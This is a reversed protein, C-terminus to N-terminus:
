SNTAVFSPTPAVTSPVVMPATAAPLMELVAFKDPLCIVTEFRRFDAHVDADLFRIEIAGGENELFGKVADMGVGRGSVETVKEATSFGSAFILQAITEASPLNEASILRNEIAKQRIRAIALGRGDDSLRFWVREQEVKLEIRIRGAAPKGVAIRKDPTEVGHDMSNRLLHMFVNKLLASIQSRIRINREEIEIQPAEKGLEKALSPLSEVVGIVIDGFKETGILNLTNRVRLLADRLAEADDKDVTELLQMAREIHEREVLLYKEVGRRGPGKRGLKDDNIRAYEQLLVYTERLESLLIDKNWDLSPNKRLEDFKQETEHVKNTLQLLGYTRANGKITHMNRFLRAIVGEERTEVKRLIEENEAVFKESSDIFEHFKEQNVALVQGIIELERKQQTAEAALARLETVDRVCVMLKEVTDNEDCIPSWSLEMTKIRGDAMARQFENVLLHTNFDFNMRDQGICSSAAVEVQSLIDAGLTSDAFILEMLGRGAIDKTEFITELYASYEPHVINGEVLTLIGQPMNQLMNQIDNSKHRLQETRQAVLHELNENLGKLDGMLRHNEQFTNAFISSAIFLMSGLFIMIGLALMSLTNIKGTALLLDNVGMSLFCLMGILLVGSGSKKQKVGRYFMYSSGVGALFMMALLPLRLKQFLEFNPYIAMSGIAVATAGFIMGFVWNIRPTFKYFFQSFLYCFFTSFIGLYHTYLMSEPSFIKLFYDSPAAFFPFATISSLGAALYLPFDIKWYLALFFIGFILLVYSAILRLDGGWFQYWALSTDGADYKHIEFPLQYVGMMLQTDVRVAVTHRPKTVTFRVPISQLSFYTEININHPRRYVEEGDVFFNVRAMYANMLVVVEQGILSPDFELEGRYWGVTYSKGDDYAPKWSGPAKVMRWAKTDIGIEKNRPDDDRTFLWTGILSFPQDLTKVQFRCSDCGPRDDAAAIGFLGWGMALMALLLWRKVMFQMM